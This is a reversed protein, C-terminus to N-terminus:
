TSILTQNKKNECLNAFKCEQNEDNIVASCKSHHLSLLMAISSFTITALVKAEKQQYIPYVPDNISRLTHRGQGM